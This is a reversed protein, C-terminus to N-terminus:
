LVSESGLKVSQCFDWAARTWEADALAHHQGSPPVSSEIDIGLDVALQELDRCFMPWGSPLDVMPGFLQCLAVWDYDAYYAWWEPNAGAFAVLDAAIEHRAKQPGCLKPLVNERVWPNVAERDAEIPEAYYTAGDDRVVGISLLEIRRGDDIFETDFWLRSMAPVMGATM